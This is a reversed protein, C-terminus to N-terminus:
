SMLCGGSLKSSFPLVIRKWKGEYWVSVVVRHHAIYLTVSLFCEFFAEIYILFVWHSSFSIRPRFDNMSGLSACHFKWRSSMKVEVNTACFGEQCDWVNKLGKKAHVNDFFNHLSRLKSLQMCMTKHISWFRLVYTLRKKPAVMDIPIEFFLLRESVNFVDVFTQMM